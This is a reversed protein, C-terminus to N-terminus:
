FWSVPLREHIRSLQMRQLDGMCAMVGTTVIQPPLPAARTRVGALQLEPNWKAMM